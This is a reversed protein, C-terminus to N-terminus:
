SPDIRTSRDDQRTTMSTIGKIFYVVGSPAFNFTGERRGGHSVVFRWQGAGPVVEGVAVASLTSEANPVGM